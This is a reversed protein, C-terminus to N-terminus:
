REGKIKQILELLDKISINYKECLEKAKMKQNM